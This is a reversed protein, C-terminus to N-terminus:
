VGVSGQYVGSYGEVNESMQHFVMQAIKADRTLRLGHPNVTQLVAGIAGKYGSDMVGAQIVAGSRWLSSRVFVQGMVDLPTDVTENFEVLYSGATLDWFSGSADHQFPVTATDATKRNTNDFDIAGPSTWLMVRKLTLDVGCPQTQHTASLLNAIVKRSAATRGPLIM